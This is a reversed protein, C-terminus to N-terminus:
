HGMPRVGNIMEWRDTQWRIWNGVMVVMYIHSMRQSHRPDRAHNKMRGILVDGVDVKRILHGKLISVHEIVLLAYVNVGSVIYMYVVKPNLKVHTTVGGLVVNVPKVINLGGEKWNIRIYNVVRHYLVNVYKM